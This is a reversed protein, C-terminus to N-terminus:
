AATADTEQEALAALANMAAAARARRKTPASGTGM